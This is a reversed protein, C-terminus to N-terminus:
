FPQMEEIKIGSYVLALLESATPVCVMIGAAYIDNLVDQEFKATNSTYVTQIYSERFCNKRLRADNALSIAKVCYCNMFADEQLDIVNFSYRLTNLVSCGGFAQHAVSVNRLTSIGRLSVCDYFAREGISLIENQLHRESTDFELLELASNQFASDGIKSVSAPLVLHKISSGAFAYNAVMVIPYNSIMNPITISRNFPLKYNKDIGRVIVGNGVVEYVVGAHIIESM